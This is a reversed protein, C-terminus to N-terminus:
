ISYFVCLVCRGVRAAAVRRGDAKGEERETPQAAAWEIMASNSGLVMHLGRAMPSTNATKPKSMQLPLFLSQVISPPPPTGPGQLHGGNQLNVRLL